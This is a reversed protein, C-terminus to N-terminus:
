KSKPCTFSYHNTKEGSFTMREYEEAEVRLREMEENLLM